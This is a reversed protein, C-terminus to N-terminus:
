ERSSERELESTQSDSPSLEKQKIESKMEEARKIAEKAKAADEPLTQDSAVFKADGSADPNITISGGLPFKPYPDDAMLQKGLMREAAFQLHRNRVAKAAEVFSSLEGEYETKSLGIDTCALFLKDILPLIEDARKELVEIWAKEDIYAGTSTIVAISTEGGVDRDFKKSQSVLYVALAVAQSMPLSPRHLRKLLENNYDNSYGIIGRELNKNLLRRGQTTVICFDDNNPKFALLLRSTRHQKPLVLVPLDEEYVKNLAASVADKAAAITAPKSAIFQTKVEDTLADILEGAGAGAVALPYGETAEIKEVYNKYEGVTEQTDACMVIGDRCHFAAIYTMRRDGTIGLRRPLPRIM